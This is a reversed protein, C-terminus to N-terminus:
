PWSNHEALLIRRHPTALALAEIEQRQRFEGRRPGDDGGGAEVLYVRFRVRRHTTPHEFEVLRKASGLGVAACLRHAPAHRSGSELTPAQWMGRWLGPGTSPRREVLVRGRPDRVLAVTHFVVRKRARKRPRPISGVVGRRAARCHERVPCGDCAPAGPTCVTAGLEMLAENHVGPDPAARLLEGARSWAWATSASPPEEVDRGEIRMLVRQINGDVTPVREGFVISALAGATYPGVGPLSRLDSESRPIEGGFRAEIERAAARLNQARRYYGLGSWVALVDSEDARALHSVDPFRAHFEALKQGVRSVQTQQLMAEAVLSLYPDRRADSGPATAARWPLDRAHRAFWAQLAACISRDRATTREGM